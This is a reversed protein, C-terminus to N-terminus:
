RAKRAKEILPRLEGREAMVKLLQFLFPVYQPFPGSPCPALLPPGRMRPEFCSCHMLGATFPRSDLALLASRRRVATQLEHVYSVNHRRRVNEEAWSARKHQEVSLADGLAAIESEAEM